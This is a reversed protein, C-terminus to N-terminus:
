PVPLNEQIEAKIEDYSQNLVDVIGEYRSAEETTASMRNVHPLTTNHLSNVKGNKYLLRGQPGGLVTCTGDANKQAFILFEQNKQMLPDTTTEYIQNDVRAGSMFIHLEDGSECGLLGEKVTVSYISSPAKGGQSSDLENVHILAIIDSHVTLDAVDAYGYIWSASIYIYEPSQKQGIVFFLIGLLAGIAVVVAALKKTKM